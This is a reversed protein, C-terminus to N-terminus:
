IYFNAQRRNGKEKDRIMIQWWRISHCFAKSHHRKDTTTVSSLIRVILWNVEIVSQHHLHGLHAERFTTAARVEPFENAFVVWYKDAKLEWHEFLVWCMGYQRVKRDILWADVDVSDDNRYATKLSMGFVTELTKAHNWPITIIKINCWLKDKIIDVASLVIDLWCMFAEEETETNDQPTWKSTRSQADSNFFDNGVVLVCEEYESVLLAQDCMEQVMDLYVQRAIKCNWEEWYHTRKNIHADFICIELAKLWEKTEKRPSYPLSLWVRAEIKGILRNMDVWQLPKTRLFHEFKNVIKTEVWSVRLVVPRLNCQYSVIENSDLDFNIHELFEEKSKIQWWEYKVEHVWREEKKTIKEKIFDEVVDSRTYNSVTWVWVWLKKAIKRNKM